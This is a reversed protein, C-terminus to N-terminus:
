ILLRSKHLGSLLRLPRSSLHNVDKQGVRQTGRRSKIVRHYCQAWRPLRSDEEGKLTLQNAKIGDLKGKGNIDQPHPHPHIQSAPIRGAM